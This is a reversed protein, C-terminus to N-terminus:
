PEAHNAQQEPRVYSLCHAVVLIVYTHIRLRGLVRVIAVSVRPNKVELPLSFESSMMPNPQVHLGQSLAERLDDFFVRCVFHLDMRTNLVDLRRARDLWTHKTDAPPAMFFVLPCGGEELSVRMAYMAEAMEDVQPM